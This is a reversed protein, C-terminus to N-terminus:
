LVKEYIDTFVLSLAEPCHSLLQIYAIYNEFSFKIHKNKFKLQKRM